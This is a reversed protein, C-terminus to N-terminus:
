LKDLYDSLDPPEMKLGKRERIQLMIEAAKTLPKGTRPEFSLPDSPMTDWHDFRFSVFAKGSTKQSLVTAFPTAGITESIPVYAEVNVRGGGVEESVVLEGRCSGLAQMIGTSSESPAEISACFLPEVLRCEATMASAFFVRRATPQLQGMGRHISDAHLKVDHLDFRIGRMNEECIPGQKTAWLLGSNVSEKIENLYQIGKTVDVLLNAGYAADSEEPAPGFGWIKLAETKDWDFEKHLMTARKKLDQTPFVRKQEIAVCLEESIPNAKIYLRNHKNPSKSLCMQSSEATVTERYAVSPAGWTLPVGPLYEGELDRMLLRMHETGCGAVVHNGSDELAIEVLQCSKSLRRLAEVMKPLDKAEKPQVSQRVVPSVLFQPPRIPYHDRNGALTARKSIFQDIGSLACLNGAPVNAIPNFAKAAGLFVGQVRREQGGSGGLARKPSSGHHVPTSASPSGPAAAAAESSGAGGEADGEPTEAVPEEEAATLDKAHAPLYDDELLYCKDAGMIGSWVRGIVFFRGPTAPQPALKVAQFLLSGQASCTKLALTTADSAPALSLAPWRKAQAAVPSPVFQQCAKAIATGAPMWLQMIRRFLAKGELKKDAPQVTVGLAKMMKEVKDVDGNECATLVTKIPNLIFQEFARVAGEGGGSTWKKTKASFYHEGWMRESMKEVPIGFKTSYTAAMQPLSFAWGQALSGFLVSGKEPSVSPAEGVVPTCGALGTNFAQVVEMLDDMIESSAKQTVLLSVDIKNCFLVPEVVWNVLEKIQRSTQAAMGGGSGDVTVLAGDGLPMVASLEASYDSHGPTDVVNLLISPDELVISTVNSKMTCGKEREDQRCHTFRAESIKDEALFGAQAGLCDCACTKGSAMSGVMLINRVKEPDDMMARVDANTFKPM